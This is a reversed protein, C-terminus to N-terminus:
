VTPLVKAVLTSYSSFTFLVFLVLTKTCFSTFLSVLCIGYRTSPLRLHWDVIWDYNRDITQPSWLFGSYLDVHFSRWVQSDTISDDLVYAKHNRFISPSMSYTFVNNEVSHCTVVVAHDHFGLLCTWKLDLHARSWYHFRYRQWKSKECVDVREKNGSDRKAVVSLIVVTLLSLEYNNM